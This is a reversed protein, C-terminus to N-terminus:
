EIIKMQFYKLFQKVQIFLIITKKIQRLYKGITFQFFKKVILYKVKIMFLTM